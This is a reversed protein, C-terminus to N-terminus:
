FEFRGENRETWTLIEVRVRQIIYDLIYTNPISVNTVNQVFRVHLVHRVHHEGPVGVTVCGVRSVVHRM